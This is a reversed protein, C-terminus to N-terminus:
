FLVAFINIYLLFHSLLSLKRDSSRVDQFTFNRGFIAFTLIKKHPETLSFIIEIYTPFMTRMTFLKKAGTPTNQFKTTEYFKPSLQSIPLKPLNWQELALFIKGQHYNRRLKNAM